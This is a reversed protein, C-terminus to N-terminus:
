PVVTNKITKLQTNKFPWSSFSYDGVKLGNLCKVAMFQPVCFARFCNKTLIKDNYQTPVDRLNLFLFWLFVTVWNLDILDTYIGSSHIVLTSNLAVTKVISALQVTPQLFM